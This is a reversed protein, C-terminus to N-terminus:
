VRQKTVTRCVLPRRNLRNTGMNAYQYTIGGDSKLIVEFNYLGSNAYSQVNQYSVVFSDVNNTWRRINTGARQPSLDDWWCALINEPAATAPLALNTYSTAGTATSTFSLWGNAAVRIQTFNTGYFPFSFGLAFPGLIKITARFRSRRELRASMLGITFPAARQLAATLGDAM